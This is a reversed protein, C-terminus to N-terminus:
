TILTVNSLVAMLYKSCAVTYQSHENQILENEILLLWFLFFKYQKVSSTIPISQILLNTPLLSPTSIYIIWCMFQTGIVM